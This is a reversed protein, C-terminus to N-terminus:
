PATPEFEREGMPAPTNAAFSSSPLVDIASCVGSASSPMRPNRESNAPWVAPQPLALAINAADGRMESGESPPSPIEHADDNNSIAMALLKM